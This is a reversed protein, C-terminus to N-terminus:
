PAPENPRPTERDDHHLGIHWLQSWLQHWPQEPNEVLWVPTGEYTSPVHTDVTTMRQVSGFHRRLFEESGGVYIAQRTQDPPRGFHWFGRSASHVSTIGHQPGFHAIASASWYDETIVPAPEPVRRSVNAVTATLEPWGVSSTGVVDFAPIAQVPLVPLTFVTAAAPATFTSTSMPIRKCRRSDWEVAAVAFLLGYFGALYYPRAGTMVFLIAVGATRWGLFRYRRLVPSRILRWFGFCVLVAGVLGAGAVSLPLAWPGYWNEAAIAESVELQPWGHSAQWHLTPAATVATIAAGLWLQGRRLLERPGTRVVVVALVLWFVPILLKVQVAVATVLGAGLLLRDNAAGDGQQRVWRTLLWLVVTWLFPDFSSTALLHGAGLTQGAVAWAGAAILQARRDGGLERTVLATVLVGAGAVVASPLRLALLSGPFATDAVLAILPVLPPQDVYGWALHHGAAIFYLEDAFYGYRGSTLILVLTVAAAILLVPRTALPVLHAPRADPTPHTRTPALQM